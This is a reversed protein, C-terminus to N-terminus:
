HVVVEAQEVFFYREDHILNLIEAEETASEFNDSEFIPRNQDDVVQYITM